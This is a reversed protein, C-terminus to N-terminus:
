FTRAARSSRAAKSFRGDEFCSIIGIYYTRKIMKDFKLIAFPVLLYHPKLNSSTCQVNESLAFTLSCIFRGFVFNHVDLVCAGGTPHTQYKRMDIRQELPLTVTPRAVLKTLTTAALLQAYPSQLFFLSM